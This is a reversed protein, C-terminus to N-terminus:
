LVERMKFTLVPVSSRRAIGTVQVPAKPKPPDLLNTKPMTARMMAEEVRDYRRFLNANSRM